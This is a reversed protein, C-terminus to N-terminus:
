LTRPKPCLSNECKQQSGTVLLLFLDSLFFKLSLFYFIYECLEFNIVQTALKVKMRLSPTLDVHERKIKNLPQLIPVNQASGEGRQM